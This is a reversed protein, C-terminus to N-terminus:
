PEFLTIIADLSSRPIARDPNQIFDMINGLLYNWYIDGFEGANGKKFEGAKIGKEFIPGFFVSGFDQYVPNKYKTDNLEGKAFVIVYKQLPHQYCTENPALIFRSGFERIATKASPMAQIEEM